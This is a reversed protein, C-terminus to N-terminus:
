GPRAAAGHCFLLLAWYALWFVVAYEFLLVENPYRFKWDTPRLEMTAALHLVAWATDAQVVLPPVAISVLEVLRPLSGVPFIISEIRPVAVGLVSGVPARQSVARPGMSCPM